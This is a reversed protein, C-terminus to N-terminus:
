PQVIPRLKPHREQYQKATDKALVLVTRSNYRLFVVNEKRFRKAGSDWWQPSGAQLAQEFAAVWQQGNLVNTSGFDVSGAAVNREILYQTGAVEMCQNLLGHISCPTPGGTAPFTYATPQPFRARKWYHFRLFWQQPISVQSTAFSITPRTTEVLNPDGAFPITSDLSLTIAAFAGCLLLTVGLIARRLTRRRRREQSVEANAPETMKSRISGQARDLFCSSHEARSVGTLSPTSNRNSASESLRGTWLGGLRGTESGLPRAEQPLRNSPICIEQAQKTPLAKM